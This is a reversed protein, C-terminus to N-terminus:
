GDSRTLKFCHHLKLFQPRRLLSILPSFFLCLCQNCISIRGSFRFLTKFTWFTSSRNYLVNPTVGTWAARERRYKNIRAGRTSTLRTHAHRHLNCAWRHGTDCVCVCVCMYWHVHLIQAHGGRQMYHWRPDTHTLATNLIQFALLSNFTRSLGLHIQCAQSMLCRNASRQGFWFFSTSFFFWVRVKRREGLRRNIIDRDGGIFSDINVLILCRSSIVVRWEQCISFLDQSQPLFCTWKLHHGKNQSHSPSRPKLSHSNILPANVGGGGWKLGGYVSVNSEMHNNQDHSAGNKMNISFITFNRSFNKSVKVKKANSGSILVIKSYNHFYCRNEENFSGKNWNRSLKLSAAM